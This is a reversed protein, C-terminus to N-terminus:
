INNVISAIMLSWWVNLIDCHWDTRKTEIHRSSKLTCKSQKIAVSNVKEKIEQTISLIWKKDIVPNIM